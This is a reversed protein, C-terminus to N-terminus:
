GKSPAAAAASAEAEAEPGVVSVEAGPRLTQVGETVVLEGPALEAEVLVTESSRERIVVPVRVAKDERVAWVFSGDSSWQIALPDVSPLTVGPLELSVSFAMGDRLLDDANPVTAQVRLTRSTRDVQNDIATIVGELRMSRAALPVIPVRMGTAIQGIVREPVRFEILLESRDTIVALSDQASVRDGVEIEFIGIWGSIPSRIVRRELDFAAERASLEATKLALEAERYRVATVAGSGELQSLREFEDRADSLVLEARDRAIREAEDDLGFIVSGAEVYSGPPYGIDVIRGTADARIAVSRVARGDGVSNVIDNVAGEEVAAVIVRAAGGGGFGRGGGADPTESGQAEIGLLDTLGVSELWPRASPVYYIWIALTAAVVLVGALFQRFLSM